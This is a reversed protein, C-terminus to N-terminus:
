AAASVDTTQRTRGLARNMQKTSSFGARAAIEAVTLTIDDAVREVEHLRRREIERRPTTGFRSFTDHATRVSVSLERALRAVTFAPDRFHTEIALQAAMFLGDRHRADFRTDDARAEDLAGAVLHELSIGLHRQASQTAPPATNLVSNTMSLLARVSANRMPIPEHFRFRTRGPRLFTPEFYWIFRATEANTRATTPAEGSLLVLSEPEADVPSGDVEFRFGGEVTYVLNPDCALAYRSSKSWARGIGFKPHQLTDAVLAPDITGHPRWGFDDCKEASAVGM